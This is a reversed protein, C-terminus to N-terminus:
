ASSILNKDKCFSGFDGILGSPSVIFSVRYHKTGDNITQGTEWQDCYLQLFPLNRIKQVSCPVAQKAAELKGEGANCVIGVEM